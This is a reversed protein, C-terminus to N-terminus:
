RRLLHGQKKNGLVIDASFDGLFPFEFAILNAPGLDGAYTGILAALQKRKRFFHQIDNREALEKKRRAIKQLSRTRDPM